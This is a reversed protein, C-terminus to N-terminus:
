GQPNILQSNILRNINLPKFEQYFMIRDLLEGFLFLFIVGTEPYSIKSILSIGTIILLALRFFGTVFKTRDHRYAINRRVSDTIKIAAMFCFPLIQGTLFSVVLLVTIFAQGSHLFVSKRYDSFIYVADIAIILLLGTVSSIIFLVPVQLIVAAASLFSYTIFLAIERSLPSSRLNFVARWARRKKGLHFMSGLGAMVLISLFHLKDPFTGSILGSVLDSVSLITLFSFAILTWEGGAGPDKEGNLEPESDFANQPSIILAPKSIGTLEVAPKLNKAPFWPITDPNFNEDMKGYALAGTPCGTTCAPMLGDTLRQYCLNCKGIVKGSVLYKPADYPCNWQCYRCGICREDDILVAGTVPDRRYASTPCGEMCVANECHNCALSLNIIPLSPLAGSNITYIM